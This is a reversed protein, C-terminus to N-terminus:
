LVHQWLCETFGESSDSTNKLVSQICSVPQQILYQPSADQASRVALVNTLHEFKHSSEVKHLVFFKISVSDIHLIVFELINVFRLSRSYFVSANLYHLSPGLGKFIFM